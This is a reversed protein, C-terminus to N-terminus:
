SRMVFLITRQRRVQKLAEELKKAKTREVECRREYEAMQARQQSVIQEFDLIKDELQHKENRLQTLQKPLHKILYRTVATSSNDSTQGPEAQAEEQDSEDGDGDDDDDEVTERGEFGFNLNPGNLPVTSTFFSNQVPDLINIAEDIALVLSDTSTTRSLEVDTDIGAIINESPESNDQVPNFSQSNSEEGDSQIEPSPITIDEEEDEMPAVDTETQEDDAQSDFWDNHDTLSTGTAIRRHIDALRNALFAGRSTSSSLRIILDRVNDDVEELVDEEVREREPKSDEGDSFTQPNRSLLKPQMEPPVQALFSMSPVFIPTFEEEDKELEPEVVEAEDEEEDIDNLILNRASTVMPMIYAKPIEPIIPEDDDSFPDPIEESESDEEDDLIAPFTSTQQTIEINKDTVVNNEAVDPVDNESDADSDNKDVTGVESSFGSESSSMLIRRREDCDAKLQLWQRESEANKQKVIDWSARSEELEKRYPITCQCRHGFFSISLFM